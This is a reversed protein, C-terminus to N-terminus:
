KAKPNIEIKSPDLIPGVFNATDVYTSDEALRSFSDFPRLIQANRAMEDSEMGYGQMYGQPSSMKVFCHTFIRHGYRDWYLTDTEMRQGNIFNTIVVDGFVEWKEEKGKVDTHKAVKAHIHTEIDSGKYTYVDFGSPFLEYSSTDTEYKEMRAAEMRLTTEGNLSQTAFISDGTQRPVSSMDVQDAVETGTSCSHFVFAAAALFVAAARIIARQGDSKAM